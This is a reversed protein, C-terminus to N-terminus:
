ITAGGHMKEGNDGSQKSGEQSAADPQVLAPQALAPLDFWRTRQAFSGQNRVNPRAGLYNRQEVAFEITRPLYDLYKVGEGLVRGFDIEITFVGDLLLLEDIVCEVIGAQPFSVRDHDHYSYSVFNREGIDNLVFITFYCPDVLEPMAYGIRVIMKDGTRFSRTPGDPGILEVWKVTNFPRPWDEDEKDALDVRPPLTRIDIKGSTKEHVIHLYSRVAEEPTEDAVMRGENLVIARQCMHRISSMSHSVLLVTRGDNAIRNIVRESKERFAADGVALVEDLILIDCHLLSAVSFALRVYMGSSYRKVPIDIFREIGSFDVIEDFQKRIEAQTLGLLAGSMYVNERGTMDPHFGTGVELLSGIRGKLWARGSTPETVGSLIKLLTSKGSGNKGVIGLIEGESVKFSINKLAWFYDSDEDRGALGTYEKLHDRLDDILGSAENHAHPVLYRKSIEECSIVIDSSM